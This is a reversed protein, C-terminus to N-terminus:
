IAPMAPIKINLCEKAQEKPDDSDLSIYNCVDDPLHQFGISPTIPQENEVSEPVEIRPSDDHEVMLTDKADMMLPVSFGFFGGISAVVIYKM